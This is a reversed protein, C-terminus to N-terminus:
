HTVAGAQFWRGILAREDETIGTANGMPMIKQVVVQQYIAQAHQKVSETSDLRMNKMQVQAGHCTYCRQELVQQVSAFDAPAAVASGAAGVAVPAPRLWVILAVIAIVMMTNM